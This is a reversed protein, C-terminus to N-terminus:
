DNTGFDKLPVPNYRILRKDVVGTDPRDLYWSNNPQEPYCCCNRTFDLCFVITSIFMVVVLLSEVIALVLLLDLEFQVRKRARPICKVEFWNEQQYQRHQQQTTNNNNVITNSTDETIKQNHNNHHIGQVVSKINEHKKQFDLTKNAALARVNQKHSAINNKVENRRKESLPYNDNIVIGNNYVDPFINSISSTNHVVQSFSQLVKKAHISRDKTNHKVIVTGLPLSQHQDVDKSVACNMYPPIIFAVLFGIMLIRCGIQLVDFVLKITLMERNGTHIGIFGFVINLILPLSTWEPFAYTKKLKYMSVTNPNSGRAQVDNVFLGGLITAVVMLLLVLFTLLKQLKIAKEQEM